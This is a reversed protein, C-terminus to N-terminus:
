AVTSNISSDAHVRCLQNKAYYQKSKAMLEDASLYGRKNNYHQRTQAKQELCKYCCCLDVACSDAQRETLRIFVKDLKKGAYKGVCGMLSLAVAKTFINYKKLLKISLFGSSVCALFLFSHLANRLIGHNYKQHILEPMLTFRLNGYSLSKFYPQLFLRGYNVYALASDDEILRVHLPYDKPINIQSRIEKLDKILNEDAFKPKFTNKEILETIFNNLKYVFHMQGIKETALNFLKQTTSPLLQCCLFFLTLFYIKKSM